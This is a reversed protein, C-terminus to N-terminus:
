DIDGVSQDKDLGQEIEFQFVKFLVGIITDADGAVMLSKEDSDM